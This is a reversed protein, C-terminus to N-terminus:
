FAGCDALAWAGSAAAAASAGAEIGQGALAVGAELVADDDTAVAGGGSAGVAEVAREGAAPDPVEIEGCITDPREWAALDGERVGRVIPACGEAQAAYLRPVAEVWGSERAEVFGKHLGVLSLGHGAPVVVADPATWGRQELLEYAVTKRAEHRLPTEGAGVCHADGAEHAAEADPLRGEVVRMEGGHVNVMAKQTFGARSPVVVRADLGARAAAAAVAQGDDGTSALTVTEAGRAAAGAVALAADRDAVSGTPNQGEDKVHVAGVGLEDALAPCEVLPTAGEGATAEPVLPLRERYRWMSEFRRGAVTERDVTTGGYQADLPGGCAPCRAPADTAEDCVTCAYGEFAPNM